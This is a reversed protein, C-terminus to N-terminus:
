DLATPFCDEDIGNGLIETADPNIMPDEDDCDYGQGTGDKTFGDGDADNSTPVANLVLEFLIRNDGPITVLQMEINSLEVKQKPSTATDQIYLAPLKLTVDENIFYPSAKLECTEDDCTGDKCIIVTIKKKAYYQPFTDTWIELTVDYTGTHVDLDSITMESTANGAISIPDASATKLAEVDADWSWKYVFNGPHPTGEVAKNIATPDVYFFLDTGSGSGVKPVTYPDVIQAGSGGSGGTADWIEVTFDLAQTGAGESIKRVCRVYLESTRPSISTVGDTLSVIWANTDYLEPISASWYLGEEGSFYQENIAPSYDANSISELETITPMRWAHPGNGGLILNDCYFCASDWTYAYSPSAAQWMLGTGTDTVTGTGTTYPGDLSSGFYGSLPHDGDDVVDECDLAFANSCAISVIFLLSVLVSIKSNWLGLWEKKM